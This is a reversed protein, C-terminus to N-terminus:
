SSTEAEVGHRKARAGLRQRMRGIDQLQQKAQKELRDLEGCEKLRLEALKSNQLLENLTKVPDWEKEGIQAKIAAQELWEEWAPTKPLADTKQCWDTCQSAYIAYWLTRTYAPIPNMKQQTGLFDMFDPDKDKDLLSECEYKSLDWLHKKPVLSVMWYAFNLIIYASGIAAQQFFKCNGLLIVSSMLLFTATGVLFRYFVTSKVEYNCQENGFYLERAVEEECLVLIFGGERTRIMVDGRPALATSSRKMLEPNWKSAYGVMSSIMSLVGLAMCAIGDRNWICFFLIILTLVFSVIDLIKLPSYKASPVLPKGDGVLSGAGTPVKAPLKGRQATARRIPLPMGAEEDHTVQPKEGYSRRRIKWHTHSDVKEVGEAKHRISYVQFDLPKLKDLPHLINPFYNLVELITGGKVGVVKAKLEPMRSPRTPKLLVQPAPLLRPLLCLWSATLPQAQEAMAYEGIVALLSVIDLRFGTEENLGYPLWGFPNPVWGM